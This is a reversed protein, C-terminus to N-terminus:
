PKEYLKKKKLLLHHIFSEIMEWKIFVLYSLLHFSVFNVKMFYYISYHFVVGGIAYFFQLNKILALPFFTIEFIIISISLFLCIWYSSALTLANENGFIIYFEILYAQLTEGNLWEFGESELRSYAAGFYCIGLTMIGLSIPWNYTTTKKQRALTLASNLGQKPYISFIFLYFIIINKSHSVYNTVASKDLSLLNGFVIFCLILAIITFLRSFKVWLSLVLTLILSYYLIQFSLVGAREIGLLEFIPIPNFQTKNAMQHVHSNKYDILQIILGLIFIFRFWILNKVNIEKFLLINELKKIM